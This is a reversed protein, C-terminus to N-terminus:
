ILKLLEKSLTDADHRILTRALLSDKPDQKFIEGSILNAGVAKYHAKELVDAEIKVGYEGQKAYRELLDKSPAKDNYVVVDLFPEGAFREIEAAYDAVGFGDTQGPKTVLNCVYVKKAKTNTLAKDLGKTLLAPALSGYLHGPAIVVLDAEAIAAKAEPNLPAPPDLRLDPRLSAKWRTQAIAQEGRIEIGEATV